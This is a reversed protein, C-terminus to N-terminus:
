IRKDRRGSHKHRRSGGIPHWQSVFAQRRISFITCIKLIEQRLDEGKEKVESFRSAMELDGIKRSWSVFHGENSHFTISELPMTRLLKIMGSINKTRGVERGDPTRFVFEKKIPTIEIKKEPRKFMLEPALPKAKPKPKELNSKNRKRSM